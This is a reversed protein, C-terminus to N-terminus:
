ANELLIRKDLLIFENPISPVITDNLWEANGACFVLDVDGIRIGLKRCQSFEDLQCDVVAVKGIPFDTLEKARLFDDSSTKGFVIPSSNQELQLGYYSSSEQDLDGTMTIRSENSLYIDISFFQLYPFDPHEWVCNDEDIALQLGVWKIVKQNKLLKLVRHVHWSSM